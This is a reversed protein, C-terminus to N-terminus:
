QAKKNKWGGSNRCSDSSGSDDVERNTFLEGCKNMEAQRRFGKSGFEMVECVAGNQSWKDNLDDRQLVWSATYINPVTVDANSM